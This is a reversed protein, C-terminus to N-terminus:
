VGEHIHISKGKPLSVIAKKYDSKKGSTVGFRKKKGEVNIMSVSKAQIGFLNKIAKKVDEKTAKRNVVFVYKNQMELRTAKESIVTKQLVRYALGTKNNKKVEKKEENKVPKEAKKIEKTKTKSLKNIIGM